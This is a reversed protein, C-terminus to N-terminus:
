PKKSTSVKPQEAEAVLALFGRSVYRDVAKSAPLEKTEGKSLKIDGDKSPVVVLANSINTYKAM